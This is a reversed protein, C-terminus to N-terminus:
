ITCFIAFYEGGMIKAGFTNQFPKQKEYEESIFPKEIEVMSCDSSLIRVKNGAIMINDQLYKVEGLSCDDSKWELCINVFKSHDDPYIHAM